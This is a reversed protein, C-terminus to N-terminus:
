PSDGKGHFATHSRMILAKRTSAGSKKCHGETRTVFRNLPSDALRQLKSDANATEASRRQHRWRRTATRIAVGEREHKARENGRPVAYPICCLHAAAPRTPASPGGCPDRGPNGVPCLDTTHAIFGHGFEPRDDDVRQVRPGLGRRCSGTIADSEGPPHRALTTRVGCVFGAHVSQIPGRRTGSL